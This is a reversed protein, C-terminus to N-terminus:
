EQERISREKSTIAELKQEAEELNQRLRRNEAEVTALRQSTAAEQTQTARSTSARLRQSETNAVIQQEVNNLHIVALSIEAPTLLVTQTLVERLLRQAGVPDSEAHGPIALVLGLRLNTSPSPILQSAASADAFIEATAAPDGSAIQGLEAIYVEMEPAGLIEAEGDSTSARGTIWDATQGCGSLVVVAVVTTAFNRMQLTQRLKGM